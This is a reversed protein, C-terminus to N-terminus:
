APHLKCKKLGYHHERALGAQEHRRRPRLLVRQVGDEVGEGEDGDDESHACDVQYTLLSSHSTAHDRLKAETQAFILNKDDIQILSIM